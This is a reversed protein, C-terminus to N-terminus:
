WQTFPRLKHTFIAKALNCIDDRLAKLDANGAAGNKALRELFRGAKLTPM